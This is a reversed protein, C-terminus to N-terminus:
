KIVVQDNMSSRSMLWGQLAEQLNEDTYHMFSEGSKRVWAWTDFYELGHYWPLLDPDYGMRLCYRNEIGRGRLKPEVFFALLFEYIPDSFGASEFDIVGVLEGDRVIFNDLWLDGNSFRTEPFQPQSDVLTHYVKEALPHPNEFFYEFARELAYLATEDGATFLDSSALQQPTVAQLACVTDLYLTEAWPEGSLMPGLLSVGQLYDSFFCPMGLAEGEPDWGYARPTPIPINEMSRLAHYEHEGRRLDLQLVFSRPEGDLLVDLRWPAERSSQTLLEAWTFRVALGLNHHLYEEVKEPHLNPNFPQM